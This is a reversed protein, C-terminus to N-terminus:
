GGFYSGTCTAPLWDRTSFSGETWRQLMAALDNAAFLCTGSRGEQQKPGAAM